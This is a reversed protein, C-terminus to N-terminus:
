IRLNTGGIFSAVNPVVGRAELYSLGDSLRPFDLRAGDPIDDTLRLSDGLTGDSPGLSIAEGFVETTVGQFLDSAASPDAQITAYAHSLVNILGPSVVHGTADLMQADVRPSVEGVAVIRDDEVLVDARRPPSGTGDVVEGGHILVTTAM